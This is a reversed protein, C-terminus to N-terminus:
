PSSSAASRSTPPIIDNGWEVTATTWLLPSSIESKPNRIPPFRTAMLYSRAQEDLGSDSSSAKLFCHRVEGRGGIAVRFQAAQPLEASSATFKLPPVQPPGITEQESSFSILTPAAITVPTAAARAMAVPAPPRSSPVTLDPQSPPLEKLAPQWDRYSPIHAPKQLAFSPADPPRQTTSSLAPDEAELWRLLARGEESNATILNVRAPPPLLAVTPPYIIQFVYFCLAHLVASAAILAALLVKRDRKPTWNFIPAYEVSASRSIMM